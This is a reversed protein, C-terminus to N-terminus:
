VAAKTSHRAYVLMARARARGDKRPWLLSKAFYAAARLAFGGFLIARLTWRRVASDRVRTIDSTFLSDIWRTSVYVAGEEKQTAGQLHLVRVSPLYVLRGGRAKMRVGLEVDEGYMFIEKPFGGVTEFASRRVMQCAGGLWDVEAPPGRLVSSNTVYYGPVAFIKSLLFQHAAINTLTPSHGADGVQHSGDANILMPGVADIKPDEGMAQTLRRLATPDKLFADPNLLLVFEGRAYEVGLNNGRGFGLNVFSRIAVDVDVRELVVDITGDESANDVVITEIESDQESASLWDLCEGILGRCNWTVIVVTVRPSRGRRREVVEPAAADEVVMM